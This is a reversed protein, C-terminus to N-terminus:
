QNNPGLVVGTSTYTGEGQGLLQPFDNLGYAIGQGGIIVSSLNQCSGNASDFFFGAPTGGGESYGSIQGNDNIGSPYTVTYGSPCEVVDVISIPNQTADGIFGYVKIGDPSYYGTVMGQGNVGSIENWVGETLFLPQSAEPKFVFGTSHNNGASVAGVVWSADNIGLAVCGTGPTCSVRVTGTSGSNTDYTFFGSSDYAAAVGANNVGTLFTSATGDFDLQPSLYTGANPQYVFGFNGCGPCFANYWSGAILSGLTGPPLTGGYQGADSVGTIGYPSTGTPGSSFSAKETFTYNKYVAGTPAVVDGDEIDKDINGGQGADAAINVGGWSESCCPASDITYQALRNSTPLASDALNYGSGHV